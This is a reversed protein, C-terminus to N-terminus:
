GNLCSTLIIAFPGALGLAEQADKPPHILQQNIYCKVRKALDGSVKISDRAWGGAVVAGWPGLDLCCNYAAQSFVMPPQGLLDTAANHGSVRGLQLAHQCCMLAYQNEGDALACAADGTAFVGDVSPVRLYQDVRLRGLADKVGPVQETLPTARVGAAWIATKTPIREGSLLTVGETDVAKVGSGLKVKVGLDTLAQIITSRPSYGFGPGVEDGNGVLIVNANPIHALRKPMEAALEIGTFGAGCVVVTDRGATAPVSALSKLHSELKVASALSDIDFAHDELGTIGEPHIVSSGAVLILRDYKITSKLLGSTCQVEVTRAETHITEVVGPVFKIGAEKFLADLPHILTAPKSEYLRPRMVLVPEPAVVLIEFEAEKNALNILRKASLASWVGGFGAGIIVIRCNM